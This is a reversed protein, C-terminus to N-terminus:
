GSTIRWLIAAVTWWSFMSIVSLLLERDLQRFVYVQITYCAAYFLFAAIVIAMSVLFDLCPNCCQARLRFCLRFALKDMLPFIALFYTLTQALHVVQRTPDSAHVAAQELRLWLYPTSLLLIRQYSLARYALQDIIVRRVETQVQVEFSDLSKYWAAVCELIIARDCLSEHAPGNQCCASRTQEVKFAGLQEQLTHVSHAYGRLAHTVLSLFLLVMIGVLLLHHEGELISGEPADLFSEIYTYIMAVAWILM